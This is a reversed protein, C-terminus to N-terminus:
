FSYGFPRIKSDFERNPSNPGDLLSLRDAETKAERALRYYEDAIKRYEDSTPMLAGQGYPDCDIHSPRVLGGRRSVNEGDDTCDISAHHHSRHHQPQQKVTLTYKTM